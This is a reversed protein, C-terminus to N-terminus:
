PAVGIRRRQTAIWRRTWPFLNHDPVPVAHSTCWREGGMALIQLRDSGRGV